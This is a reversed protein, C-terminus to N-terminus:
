RAAANQRIIREMHVSRTWVARPEVNFRRSIQHVPDRKARILNNVTRDVEDVGVCLGTLVTKVARHGFDTWRSFLRLNCIDLDASSFCLPLAGSGSQSKLCYLFATPAGDANRRAFRQSCKRCTM